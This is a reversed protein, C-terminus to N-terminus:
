QEENGLDAFSVAMSSYGLAELTNGKPQLVEINQCYYVCHVATFIFATCCLPTTVVKLDKGFARVTERGVEM